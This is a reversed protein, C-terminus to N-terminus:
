SPGRLGASRGFQEVDDFLLATFHRRSHRRRPRHLRASPFARPDAAPYEATVEVNKDRRTAQKACADLGGDTGNAHPPRASVPKAVPTMTRLQCPM